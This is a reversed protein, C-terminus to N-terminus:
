INSTLSRIPFFLVYRGVHYEKSERPVTRGNHDYDVQEEDDEEDDDDGDDDDDDTGNDIEELTTPHYPKGYFEITWTAPHGSRNCADCHELGLESAISSHEMLTIGPRSQLAITFEMTWASSTFKSGALGRVEDDLKRFALIYIEDNMAFAPNIKKQVMWEVVFKFLDKGKMRSVNSFELPMDVPAGLLDNPDDDVVFGQDEEEELFMDRRNDVFEAESEEEEDDSLRSTSPEAQSARARKLAELATQRANPKKQKLPGSKPPPSSQLFELDDNLDELEQETVKRSAQTLKRSRHNVPGADEEEDTGEDDEQSHHRRALRRKRPLQSEVSVDTAGAEDESDSLEIFDPTPARRRPKKPPSSQLAAVEDGSTEPEGLELIDTIEPAGKRGGDEDEENGSDSSEIVIAQKAGRGSKTRFSPSSIENHLGSSRTRQRLLSSKPTRNPRISSM